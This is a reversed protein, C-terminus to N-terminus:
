SANRVYKALDDVYRKIFAACAEVGNSHSTRPGGPHFGVIWSGRADAWEPRLVYWSESARQDESFGTWSDVVEPHAEIYQRLVAETLASRNSLYGSEELLAVMSVDGRRTFDEPMRCIAEITASSTAM